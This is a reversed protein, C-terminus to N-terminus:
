SAIAAAMRAPSDTTSTIASAFNWAASVPSLYRCFALGECCPCRVGCLFSFWCPWLCSDASRPRPEAQDGRRGAASRGDAVPEGDRNVTRLRAGATTLGGVHQAGPGAPGAVRGMHGAAVSMAALAAVAGALGAIKAVRQWSLTGLSGREQPSSGYPQAEEARCASTIEASM